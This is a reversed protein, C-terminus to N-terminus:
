KYVAFNGDIFVPVAKGEATIGTIEMDDTGIMFDVHVLSDNVGAQALEERSMTESGEVCVPYAKGIALHCSANEDYLTNLFVIGTESIPSKQPVLAVEGLYCSGSDTEILKKVIETHKGADFQIIKGDVFTFSLREILNGNYSLPRSSVVTGNVGTKKPLTFVEETPMNAIFEVGSTTREAGGLWIHNPPLEVRLDTGQGNKYQLFQFRHSNLFDLRQQLASKHDEWAAVPDDADVRVAQLIATWLKDVAASEPLEPFVKGAWVGTPISIISWANKNSMLAERFAKLASNRTRQSKAVREPNVEKLIEPDSADITLFAAGQQLYFLYFDKEWQPFTEFVEEPAQLFRLKSFLEDRWNMVVDKAGEEYATKAVLRAFPACEVPSTIVLIQNQQIHIGTKVILRAYKGLAALDM